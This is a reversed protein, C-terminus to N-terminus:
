RSRNEHTPDSPGERTLDQNVGQDVSRFARLGDAYTNRKKRRVPDKKTSEAKKSNVLAHVPGEPGSRSEAGGLTANQVGQWFKM